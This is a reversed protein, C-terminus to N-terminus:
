EEINKKTARSIDIKFTAPVTPDGNRIVKLGKIAQIVGNEYNIQQKTNLLKADNAKVLIKYLADQEEKNLGPYSQAYARFKQLRIGRELRLWPKVTSAAVSEAEFFNTVQNDFPTDPKEVVNEQQHVITEQIPGTAPKLPSPARKMRRTKVNKIMM